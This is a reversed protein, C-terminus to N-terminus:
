LLRRRPPLAILGNQPQDINTQGCFWRLASDFSRVDAPMIRANELRNPLSNHTSFRRNDPWSHYHPECFDYEILDPPRNFSNVHHEDNVYDIRWICQPACIMIRFKTHGVYPYGTIILDAGSSVGDVRLPILLREEGEYPGTQWDPVGGLTKRAALLDDILAAIPRDLM